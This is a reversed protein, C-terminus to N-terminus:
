WLFVFFARVMLIEEESAERPVDERPEDRTKPKPKQLFFYLLCLNTASCFLLLCAFYVVEAVLCRIYRM